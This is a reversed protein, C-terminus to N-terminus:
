SAAAERKSNALYAFVQVTKLRHLNIIRFCLGREKSRPM